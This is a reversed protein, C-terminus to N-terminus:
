PILSILKLILFTASLICGIWPIIRPFRIPFAEPGLRRKLYILSLNVIVFIGIIIFSTIEALAVLDFSISLFWIVLSVSIVALIPTNFRASLVSFFNPALRDRSMGFLVRSAMMIQVLATNLVSVLSILSILGTLGVGRYELLDAMPAESEKLMDLPMARLAVASVIMYLITAVLISIIIARPLARVPDKAEEAMNALDEFGVFAYFALFAGSLIGILHFNELSFVVTGKEPIVPDGQSGFYIIILLGIVELATIIGVFNVSFDAGLITVIAMFAIVMTIGIWPAVDIFEQLYGAFGKSLVSASVVGTLMLLWGTARSIWRRSFAKDAYVVEGAAKPFKASLEAYSLGTFTALIAAVLFAVPSWTEAYVAIKGVLVYIGAGLM